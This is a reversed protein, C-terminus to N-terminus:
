IDTRIYPVKPDPDLLFYRIPFNAEPRFSTNQIAQRGGGDYWIHAHRIEPTIYNNAFYDITGPWPKIYDYRGNDWIKLVRDGVKLGEISDLERIFRVEM